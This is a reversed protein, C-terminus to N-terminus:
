SIVSRTPRVSTTGCRAPQRHARHHDGARDQGIQILWQWIVDPPADITLALTSQGNGDPNLDDGPLAMQREATTSGWNAMWPRIGVSYVAVLLLVFPVAYRLRVAKVVTALQTHVM